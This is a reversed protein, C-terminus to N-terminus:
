CHGRRFMEVGEVTNRLLLRAAERSPFGGLGCDPGVYRLRHGFEGHLRETREAVREPSETERIVRLFADEEGWADFGTADRHEAAMSDSDTRSVGARLYGGHSELVERDVADARSPDSATEVGIVDIGAELAEVYYLPSHLHVQTEVGVESALHLADVLDEREIAIAPNTGLSPEDLALSRVEVNELELASEGFRKVTEAVAMLVDRHPSPGTEAVALEVPGTVPVKVEVTEGSEGYHEDLIELEPMSALEERLVYPEEWNDQERLPLLFTDVMERLQPYCPVDLGTSRKEEFLEVVLSVAEEQREELRAVFGHGMRPPYSGVDDVVIRM